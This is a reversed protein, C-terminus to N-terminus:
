LVIIEYTFNIIDIEVTGMQTIRNQWERFDRKRGSSTQRNQNLNLINAFIGDEKNKYPKTYGITFDMRHGCYSFKLRIEGSRSFENWNSMGYLRAPTSSHRLRLRQM